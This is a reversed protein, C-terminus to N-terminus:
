VIEFGSFLGGLNGNLTSHVHVHRAAHRATSHKAQFHQMSSFVVVQYDGNFVDNAAEGM